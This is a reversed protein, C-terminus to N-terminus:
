QIACCPPEPADAAVLTAGAPRSGLLCRDHHEARVRGAQGACVQATLRALGLAPLCHYELDALRTSGDNRYVGFRLSTYTTGPECHEVLVEDGPQLTLRPLEGFGPRARFQRQWEVRLTWDTRAQTLLYAHRSPGAEVVLLVPQGTLNTFQQPLEAAALVAGALAVAAAPLRIPNM